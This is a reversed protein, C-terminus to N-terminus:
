EALEFSEEDPSDVIIITASFLASELGEVAEEGCEPCKYNEADPEVYGYEGRSIFNCETCVGHGDQLDHFMEVTLQPIPM